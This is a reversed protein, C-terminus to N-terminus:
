LVGRVAAVFLPLVLWAWWLPASAAEDSSPAPPATKAARSVAEALPRAASVSDAYAGAVSFAELMGGRELLSTSAGPPAMRPAPLEASAPSLVGNLASRVRVILGSSSLDLALPRPAGPVSLVAAGPAGTFAAIEGNPAASGFFAAAGAPAVAGPVVSGVADHLTEGDPAYSPSARGPVHGAGFADASDKPALRGTAGYAPGFAGGQLLTAAVVPSDAPSSAVNGVTGRGKERSQDFFSRGLGATKEPQAPAFDSQDVLAQASTMAGAAASPTLADDPTAAARTRDRSIALSAGGPVPKAPITPTKDGARGRPASEPSLEVQAAGPAAPQVAAAEPANGVFNLAPGGLLGPVPSPLLPLVGGLGLGAGLSPSLSGAAPALVPVATASPGAPAVGNEVPMVVGARSPTVFFALAFLVNV